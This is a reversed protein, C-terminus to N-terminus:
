SKLFGWLRMCEEGLQLFFKPRPETMIENCLTSIRAVHILLEQSRDIMQLQGELTLSRSYKSISMNAAQTEKELRAYEKNSIRFSIQQELKESM